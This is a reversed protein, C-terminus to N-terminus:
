RSCRYRWLTSRMRVCLHRWELPMPTIRMGMLTLLMEMQTTLMGMLTILLSMRTILPKDRVQAFISTAMADRNGGALTVMTVATPSTPAAALVVAAVYLARDYPAELTFIHLSDKLVQWFFM